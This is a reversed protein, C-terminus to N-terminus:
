KKSSVRSRQSHVDDDEDEDNHDLVRYFGEFVLATIAMVKDLRAGM